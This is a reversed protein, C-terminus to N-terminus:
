PLLKKTPGAPKFSAKKAKGSSSSTAVMIYSTKREV